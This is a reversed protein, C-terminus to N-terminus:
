RTPPKPPTYDRGTEKEDKAIDSMLGLMMNTIPLGGSKFPNGGMREWEMASGVDMGYNTYDQRTPDTITRRNVWYQPHYYTSRGHAKLWAEQEEMSMAAIQERTLKESM